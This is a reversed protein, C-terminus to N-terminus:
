ELDRFGQIDSASRARTGRSVLKRTQVFYTAWTLSHLYDYPDKLFVHQGSLKELVEHTDQATNVM